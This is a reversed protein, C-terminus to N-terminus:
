QFRELYLQNASKSGNSFFSECENAYSSIVSVSWKSPNRCTLRDLFKDSLIDEWLICAEDWFERQIQETAIARYVAVMPKKKTGNFVPHHVIVPFETFDEVGVLKNYVMGYLTFQRAWDRGLETVLMGKTYNKHAGCWKSGDWKDMYGPKPTTGSTSSYGSCKWDLPVGMNYEEDWVVADLKCMLPLKKGGFHYEKHFDGEVQVWKTTTVLRSNRYMDMLQKSARFCEEIIDPNQMSGQIKELPVATPVGKEILLEKISIDFATGVGMALNQKERPMSDLILKQCYFTNPNNIAVSISSPSLYDPTKEINIM